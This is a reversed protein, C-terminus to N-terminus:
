HLPPLKFTTLQEIYLCVASGLSLSLSDATGSDKFLQRGTETDQESEVNKVNASLAAPSIDQESQGTRENESSREVILAGAPPASVSLRKDEGASDNM